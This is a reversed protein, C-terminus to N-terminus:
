SLGGQLYGIHKELWIDKIVSEIQKIYPIVALKQWFEEFADTLWPTFNGQQFAIFQSRVQSLSPMVCIDTSFSGKIAHCSIHAM